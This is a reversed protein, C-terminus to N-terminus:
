NNLREKFPTAQNTGNNTLSNSAQFYSNLLTRVQTTVHSEVGIMVNVSTSHTVAIKIKRADNAVNGDKKWNRAEEKVVIHQFIYYFLKRIKFGISKYFRYNM